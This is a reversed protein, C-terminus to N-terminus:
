GCPMTENYTIALTDTSALNVSPTFQGACVLGSTGASNACMGVTQVQNQTATATFTYTFLVYTSTGSATTCKGYTENAGTLAATVSLGSNTILTPLTTATVAVSSDNSLTMYNAKTTAGDLTTNTEAGIFYSSGYSTLPDNNVGTATQIVQGQANRVTATITGIWGNMITGTVAAKPTSTTQLIMGAVMSAMMLVAVISILGIRKKTIM